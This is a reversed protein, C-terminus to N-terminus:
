SQAFAVASCITQTPSKLSSWDGLQIEFAPGESQGRIVHTDFTQLRSPPERLPGLPLCHGNGFQRTGDILVIEKDRGMAFHSLGDDSLILDLSKLKSLSFHSSLAMM